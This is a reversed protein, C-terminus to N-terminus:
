KGGMIKGTATILTIKESNKEILSKVEEETLQDINRWIENYQDTIPDLKSSITLASILKSKTSRVISLLSVIAIISGLLLNIKNTLQFEFLIATVIGSSAILSVFLYINYEM